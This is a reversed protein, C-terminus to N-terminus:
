NLSLTIKKDQVNSFPRNPLVAVKLSRPQSDFRSPTTVFAIFISRTAEKSLALYKFLHLKNRSNAVKLAQIAAPNRLDWHSRISIFLGSLYFIFIHNM